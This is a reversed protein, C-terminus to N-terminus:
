GDRMESRVQMLLKGLHNEGVGDCVGWFHDGWHNGEVLEADGTVDLAEALEPHAFKKRLLTLMVGVRIDDWNSRLKMKRGRRKAMGPTPLKAIYRREDMDHTKAAQFAHEVSPYVIGEHVIRCIEFNSLFSYTGTFRDVKAVKRAM